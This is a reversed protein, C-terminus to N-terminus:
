NIEEYDVYEGIKGSHSKKDEKINPNVTIRGEQEQTPQQQNYHHHVNHHFVKANIANGIFRGFILRYVVYLLFLYILFKIM